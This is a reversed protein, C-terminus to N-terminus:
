KIWPAKERNFFANIGQQAEHTEWRGALKEATYQLQNENSNRALYRCLSKAQAVAGPACQLFADIESEVAQDLESAKVVTSILGLKNAKKASFVKANMFVQRANSEGLRNIVYPGITAPILGLRTETLAFNCIKTAICIDCVSILGVGGGYAPGHIRGILPKPLEDLERLMLALESSEKIKGLRDKSAQEKMWNLDGGSCFSKGEAALVVVRVDDAKSVQAAMQRLEQIMLANIANHKEPRNLTVRAVDDKIQLKITEFNQM